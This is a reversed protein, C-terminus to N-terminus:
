WNLEWTNRFNGERSCNGHWNGLSISAEPNVANQVDRAGDSARGSGEPQTQGRVRVPLLLVHRYPLFRGLSLFYNWM